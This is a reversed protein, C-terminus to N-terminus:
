VVHKELKTLRGSLIGGIVALAVFGAFLGSLPEFPWKLLAALVPYLLMPFALLFWAQGKSSVKVPNSCYPCVSIARTFEYWKAPTPSPRQGLQAPWAIRKECWPCTHSIIM